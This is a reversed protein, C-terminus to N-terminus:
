KIKLNGQIKFLWQDIFLDKGDIFILPNPLAKILKGSGFFGNDSGIHTNQTLHKSKSQLQNNVLLRYPTNLYQAAHILLVKSLHYFNIRNQLLWAKYHM